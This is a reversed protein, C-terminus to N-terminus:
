DDTAPFARVKDASDTALVKIEYPSMSFTVGSRWHDATRAGLNVRNALDTVHVTRAQDPLSVLTNVTANSPNHLIVYKVEEKQLVAVEVGATASAPPVVGCDALLMKLSQVTAPDNVDPFGGLLIVHGKGASWRAIAVRGRDFRALVAHNSPLGALPVIQGLRLRQNKLIGEGAADAAGSEPVVGAVGACGLVKLFRYEEHPNGATFRGSQPFVVATGGKRVYDAVADAAQSTLVPLGYDVLVPMTGPDLRPADGLFARDTYLSATYGTKAAFQAAEFFEGGRSLKCQNFSLSELMGLRKGVPQADSIEAAAARMQTYTPYIGQTDTSVWCHGKAGYKLMHFLCLQFHPFDPPTGAPEFTHVVGRDRTYTGLLLAMSEGEYCTNHIGAHYM